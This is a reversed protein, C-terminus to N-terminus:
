LNYPIECQKDDVWDTVNEKHEIEYTLYNKGFTFCLKSITLINQRNNKLNSEGLTM